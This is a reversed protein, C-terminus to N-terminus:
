EKLKVASVIQKLEEAQNLSLSANEDTEKALGQNTDAIALVKGVEDSVMVIAEKQEVTIRAMNDSIDAFDEAAKKINQFSEATDKATVMGQGISFSAKEIIEGTKHLADATQEALLGIQQAVVAFGKGAEGARAAEISANLSLLSTQSSIEEILHSITIIEQMDNHISDMTSLMDDMQRKGEEVRQEAIDASKKVRKANNDIEDIKQTIVTIKEDLRELAATQEISGDYLRRAYGSTESSNSSVALSAKNIHLMTENLSTTIYSLADKIAIFDGDFADKVKGSYDGASLQGLYETIDDIYGALCTVTKSLATTLVESEVNNDAPVVPDKLNGTSLSVLRETAVSLSGSIKDAINVVLKRTVFQLVIIVIISTLVSGWLIKMFDNGPAAIMLTWNTGAVPSYAIYHQKFGLLVSNADTQFDLMSDFIKKNKRSKYLKYLNQNKGMNSINKDAIINGENDVIYALGGAGININSLVDNLLDYKYSGILYAYSDGEQGKVPIGVSLQWINNNYEPKGITINDTGSLYQFYETGDISSPATDDGYMKNGSLDYVAIWVFEIRLKKDDLLQQRSSGSSKQDALINEQAISDIRDALMHLNSSFNQAATRATVQLSDRLVSSTSFLGTFIMLLILVIGLAVSISTVYFVIIQKISKKERMAIICWKVTQIGM